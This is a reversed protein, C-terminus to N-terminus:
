VNETFANLAFLLEQKNKYWGDNYFTEKKGFNTLGKGYSVRLYVRSPKDKWNITRMRNYFRRKSHTQYRQITKGNKVIRYTFNLRNKRKRM